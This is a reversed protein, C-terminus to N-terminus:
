MEEYFWKYLLRDGLEISKLAEVIKPAANGGGYPNKMGRLSERFEISLAQAIGDAIANTEEPVNIVNEAQTRGLQRDGINVVPLEFSAAELIGSSSNGIMAKAHRLVTFYGKSGLSPVGSAQPHNKLFHQIREIIIEGATDTNPYTFLIQHDDIQSLAALLHDFNEATHEFIRTVPHYTVLLTSYSLAIGFITEFEQLSYPQTQQINDLSPAGTLFVRWPEEGMHILRNAYKETAPFHIHSMKTIAHRFVEDIAGVTSEGGGIHAIPINFPVASSVVAAIEFRDGLVLLIDPRTNSFSEGFNKIALAMMQNIGFPSDGDVWCPIREQIPFGDAQIEEITNGFQEVLHTGTVYLWLELLEDADILKLVPRLIGYDARTSTVVGIRRTM